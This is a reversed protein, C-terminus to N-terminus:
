GFILKMYDSLILGAVRNIEARGFFDMNSDTLKKIKARLSSNEERSVALKKQLEKAKKLAAMIIKNLFPETPELACNFSVKSLNNAPKVHSHDTLSTLSLVCNSLTKGYTIVVISEKSLVVIM